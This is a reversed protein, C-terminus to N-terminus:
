GKHEPPDNGYTWETRWKGNDAQVLVQSDHGNAHSKKAAAVAADIAARQTDFATDTDNLRVKWGAGASVVYYVVRAM